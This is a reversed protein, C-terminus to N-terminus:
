CTLPMFALKFFDWCPQNEVMETVYPWLFVTKVLIQSVYLGPLFTYPYKDRWAEWPTLSSSYLTYAPPLLLPFVFTFLSCSLRFVLFGSLSCLAFGRQTAILSHVLALDPFLPTSSNGLMYISAEVRRRPLVSIRSLATICKDRMHLRDFCSVHTWFEIYYASVVTHTYLYWTAENIMWTQHRCYFCFSFFRTISTVEPKYTLM